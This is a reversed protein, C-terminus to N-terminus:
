YRALRAQLRKLPWPPFRLAMYNIPTTDRSGSSAVVYVTTKIIWSM